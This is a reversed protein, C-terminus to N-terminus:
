LEEHPGLIADLIRYFVIDIYHSARAVWSRWDWFLIILLVIIFCGTAGSLFSIMFTPSLLLRQSIYWLPESTM